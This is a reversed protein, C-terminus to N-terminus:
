PGAEQSLHSVSTIRSALVCTAVLNVAWGAGYAVALGVAGYLPSLYYALVVFLLCYPVAVFRFSQWLMGHSQIIQYVSIAIGEVLAAFLLIKLVPFAGGFDSGFLNLLVPGLGLLTLSVVIVACANIALTLWFTQWYMAADGRGKHNNLISLGVNNVVVPLFMVMMRLTLAANYIAMQEFGGEQRILFTNGIWIAPMTVYSSLAAPLAFSHIIKSEQQLGKYTVALKNKRFEKRLWYNHFVCRLMNAVSLSLLAGHLQFWWAGLAIAFVTIAGSVIAAKALSHYGELGAFVGVQYGNVAAFFLYGAGIILATTLHPSKMAYRALPSATLILLITGLCAVLVAILTCLGLIRGTKEKDTSRFEAVYKTATYGMSLQILAAATLLTSVVISYEGFAHKGVIRAVVINVAFISGQNFITAILNWLTGTSLRSRLHVTEM